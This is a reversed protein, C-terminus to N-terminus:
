IHTLLHHLTAMSCKKTHCCLSKGDFDQVTTRHKKSITNDVLITSLGVPTSFNSILEPVAVLALMAIGGGVVM